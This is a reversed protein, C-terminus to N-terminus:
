GLGVGVRVRVMVGMVGGERAVDTGQPWRHAWHTEPSGTIPDGCRVGTVTVDTRDGTAPATKPAADDVGHPHPRDGDWSWAMRHGKATYLRQRRMGM